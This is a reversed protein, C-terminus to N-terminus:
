ITIKATDSELGIEEDKIVAKAYYEIKVPPTIDKNDIYPSNTDRSLFTFETEGTKRRYINVGDSLSKTFSVEVGGTVKKLKLEPKFTDPNFPNEPGIIDFEKGVDTTYDPSNKIMQATARLNTVLIKRHQQTIDVQKRKQEDLDKEKALDGSYITVNSQTVKLEEANIGYHNVNNEETIVFSKGYTELEFKNHPIYDQQAM